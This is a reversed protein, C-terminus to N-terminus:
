IPFLIQRTMIPPVKRFGRMYDTVDLLLCVIFPRVVLYDVRRFNFLTLAKASRGAGRVFTWGCLRRLRDVPKRAQPWADAYGVCGSRVVAGWASIAQARAKAEMDYRQPPDYNMPNAARGLASVEGDCAALAYGTISASLAAALAIVSVWRLLALKLVSALPTPM